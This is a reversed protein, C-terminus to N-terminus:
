LTQGGGRLFDGKGLPVGKMRLLDYATTLHFYFNPLTFGQVFSAGTFPIEGGPYKFMIQVEEKGEFASKDVSKLLDLAKAIRAQLDAFTSEKGDNEFEIEAHGTVRVLTMAVMRTCTAIQFPFPHMDDYIRAEIFTSEPLGKEKAYEEAKSIIHSLSTLGRTYAPISIDYLTFPM